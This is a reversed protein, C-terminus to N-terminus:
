EVKPPGYNRTKRSDDIRDKLREVDEKSCPRTCSEGDRFEGKELREIEAPDTVESETKHSMYFHKSMELPSRYHKHDPPISGSCGDESSDNDNDDYCFSGHANFRWHVGKHGEVGQCRGAMFVGEPCQRKWEVRWWHGKGDTSYLVHPRDDEPKPDFDSFKLNM